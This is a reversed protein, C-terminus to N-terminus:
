QSYCIAFSTVPTTYNVDPTISSFYQSSSKASKNSARVGENLQILGFNIYIFLPTYLHVLHLPVDGVTGTFTM